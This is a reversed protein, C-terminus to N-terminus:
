NNAMRRRLGAASSGFALFGFGLYSLLATESGTVALATTGDAVPIAAAVGATGGDAILIVDAAETADGSEAAAEDAVTEVPNLAEDCAQVGAVTSLDLEVPCFDGLVDDCNYDFGMHCNVTCSPSGTAVLFDTGGSWFTSGVGSGEPATERVFDSEICVATVSSSFVATPSAQVLPQVVCWYDFTGSPATGQGLVLPLPCTIPEGVGLANIGCVPPLTGDDLWAVAGFPVALCTAQDSVPM